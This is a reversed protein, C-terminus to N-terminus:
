VLLKKRDGKGQDREEEEEEEEEEEVGEEKENEMPTDKVIADLPLEVGGNFHLLEVTDDDREEGGKDQPYSQCDHGTM